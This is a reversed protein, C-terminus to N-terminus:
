AAAIHRMAPLVPLGIDSPLTRALKSRNRIGPLQRMFFGLDSM